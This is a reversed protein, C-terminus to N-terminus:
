NSIGFPVTLRVESGGDVHWEKHGSPALAVGHVFRQDSDALNLWQYSLGTARPDLSRGSVTCLGQRSEM